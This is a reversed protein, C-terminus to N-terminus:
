LKVMNDLVYQKIAAEYEEDGAELNMCQSQFHAYSVHFYTNDIKKSTVDQAFREEIKSIIVPYECRGFYANNNDRIFYSNETDCEAACIKQAHMQLNRGDPDNIKIGFEPIELPKNTVQLNDTKKNNAQWVYWAGVGVAALVVLIIIIEVVGFGKQNRNM